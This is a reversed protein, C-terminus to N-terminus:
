WSLMGHTKKYVDYMVLTSKLATEKAKGQVLSSAYNTKGANFIPFHKVGNIIPDMMDSFGEPLRGFPSKLADKRKNKKRLKESEKTQKEEEEKDTLYFDLEAQLEKLSVDTLNEVIDMDEYLEQKEIAEIEEGSFAYPKFTISTTGTHIYQNAGATRISQPISRFKFEVEICAYYKQDLKLNSYRDYVSSPKVEKKGFISLKLEMNNFSSVIHPSSSDKFGLKQAAALYPKAWKTYLKLSEVQSKLYAKEINRRKTLEIQSYKKWQKYEELKRAIIGKVRKNLDLSEVEQQSNAFMFADRLTAFGLQQVML